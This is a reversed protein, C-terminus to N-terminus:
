SASTVSLCDQFHSDEGSFRLFHLGEKSALKSFDKMVCTKTLSRPKGKSSQNCPRMLSIPFVMSVKVFAPMFKLPFPNQGSTM